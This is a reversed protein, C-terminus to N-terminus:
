TWDSFKGKNQHSGASSIRASLTNALGKKIVNYTM